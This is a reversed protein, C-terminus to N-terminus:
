ILPGIDRQVRVVRQLVPLSGAMLVFFVGYMMRGASATQSSRRRRAILWASFSDRDTTRNVEQSAGHM